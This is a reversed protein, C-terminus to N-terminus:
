SYSVGMTASNSPLLEILTAKVFFFFMASGVVPLLQIFFFTPFYSAAVVLLLSSLPLLVLTFLPLNKTEKEEEM